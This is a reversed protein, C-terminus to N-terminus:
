VLLYPYMYTYINGLYYAYIKTFLNLKKTINKESPFLLKFSKLGQQPSEMLLDVLNIDVCKLQFHGVHIPIFM